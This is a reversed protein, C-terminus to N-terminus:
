EEESEGVCSTCVIEHDVRNRLSMKRKLGVERIRLAFFLKPSHLSLFYWPISSRFLGFEPTTCCVGGKEFSLCDAYHGCHKQTDDGSLFVAFLM